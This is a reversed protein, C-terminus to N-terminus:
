PKQEQVQGNRRILAQHIKNDHDRWVVEYYEIGSIQHESVAEVDACTGYTGHSVLLSKGKLADTVAFSEGIQSEGFVQQNTGHGSDREYAFEYIM